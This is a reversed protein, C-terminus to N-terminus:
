SILYDYLHYGTPGAEYACLIKKDAFNKKIYNHFGEPDSPIKKSRMMGNNDKVTFSFSKKDVDIGIFTDYTKSLDKLVTM